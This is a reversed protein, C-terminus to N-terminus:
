VLIENRFSELGWLLLLAGLTFLPLPMLHFGSPLWVFDMAVGIVLIEWARFRIALLAMVAFVLWPSWFVIGLIGIATGLIRLATGRARQM